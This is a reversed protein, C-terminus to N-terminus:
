VFYRQVTLGFAGLLNAVALVLLVTAAATRPRGRPVVLLAVGAACGPVLDLGAVKTLIAGALVAGLLVGLELSLGRRWARAFLWLMTTALAILLANPNVGGGIWTLVPQYALRV